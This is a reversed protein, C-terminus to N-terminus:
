GSMNSDLRCPSYAKQVKQAGYYSVSILNGEFFGLPSCRGGDRFTQAGFLWDSARIVSEFQQPPNLIKCFLFFLITRSIFFFASQFNHALIQVGIQVGVQM